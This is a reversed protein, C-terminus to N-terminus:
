ESQSRLEGRGGAVASPRGMVAVTQSRWWRPTASENASSSLRWAFPVRGPRGTTSTPGKSAGVSRSMARSSSLRAARRLSPPDSVARWAEAAKRCSAAAM